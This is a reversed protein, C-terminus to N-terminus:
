ASSTRVSPRTRPSRSRTTGSRSRCPAGSSCSPERPRRGVWPGSRRRPCRHTSSARRPRSAASRAPAGTYDFANLFTPIVQWYYLTGEDVLPSRPAYCPEDTFAAQVVTTFNADRAIVVWYGTSANVGATRDKDAPKWCILPSKGVTAGVGPSIVDAAPNLRGACGSPGAVLCNAPPNNFSLQGGVVFSTTAYPGAIATGDIASDTFARVYVDCTDGSLLPSGQQVSLGPANFFPPHGSGGTSGFPTWATNATNYITTGSDCATQLEYHRAGPVTSWTVVPEDVNGGPPIAQLTSDYVTLNPPGPVATQDYTKDFTPGNNWPGAQGQPDLGRVRWYYTNNPLTRTPAFSTAGTKASFLKSGTAFGSTTNIEMEYSAAGPIPAWQFLPDFIEVGPVMDTVTPTTTGAWMWAFSHIASPAGANGEADVPVVQWYYTGPHLSTSVALNTNSTTIPNGNDAWALAGKSIIGGPADVGGGAAGAAISVRYTSAGPVSAWTLIAPNPYAITNLSAPTLLAAVDSWKKTFKRVGSWKSANTDKDISRVRWFYAGNPLMKSNVFRLNQTTM